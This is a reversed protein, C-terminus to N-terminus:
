REAFTEDYLQRCHTKLEMALPDSLLIGDFDVSCALANYVMYCEDASTPFLGCFIANLGAMKRDLEPPTPTNASIYIIITQIGRSRLNFIKRRLFEEWDKGTETLMLYAYHDEETLNYKSHEPLPVKETGSLRCYIGVQALLGAMISHHREPFYVVSLRPQTTIRVFAICTGWEAVKNKMGKFDVAKYISFYLAIPKFGVRTGAKQSGTHTTVTSGCYVDVNLFNQEIRKDIEKLLHIIAQSQRYAPKIMMSGSHACRPKHHPITFSSNGVIQGDAEVVISTIEGSELLKKLEPEHYFAEGPYSYRYTDYTLDVISAADDPTALRTIFPTKRALKVADADSSSTEFTMAALQKIITVQWGDRGHNNFTIKDVVQQALFLWLGDLEANDPSQPNYQPIRSLHVPPGANAISVELTNNEYLLFGVKIREWAEPNSYSNILFTMTEDVALNLANAEKGSGGALTTIKQVYDQVLPMFRLDYPIKFDTSFETIM